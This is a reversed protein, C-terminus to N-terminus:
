SGSPTASTPEMAQPSASFSVKLTSSLPFIASALNWVKPQALAMAEAEARVSIILPLVRSSASFIVLWSM